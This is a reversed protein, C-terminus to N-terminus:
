IGEETSEKEEGKKLNQNKEVKAGENMKKGQTTIYFDKRRYLKM